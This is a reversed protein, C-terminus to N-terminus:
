RHFTKEPILDPDLASRSPAPNPKLRVRTAGADRCYLTTHYIWKRLGKDHRLTHRIQLGFYGTNTNVFGLTIGRNRGHGHIFKLDAEGMEWSQQIIKELVGNGVIDTPHYGHLDIEMDDDKEGKERKGYDFKVDLKEFGPM